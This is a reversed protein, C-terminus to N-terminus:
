KMMERQNARMQRRIDVWVTERVKYDRKARKTVKKAFDKTLQKQYGGNKKIAMKHIKIINSIHNEVAELYTEDCNYVITNIEESWIAKRVYLM